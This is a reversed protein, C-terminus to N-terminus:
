ANLLALKSPTVILGRDLSDTYSGEGEFARVVSKEEKSMDAYAKKGYTPPLWTKEQCAFANFTKLVDLNTFTLHCTGKKYFTLSFYRCAINRTKKTQTFWDFLKLIERKISAVTNAAIEQRITLINYKSFDYDVLQALRESYEHQMTETMNDRIAPINFLIQWYKIRLQGIAENYSKGLSIVPDEAGSKPSGLFEKIGEYEEYIRRLGEAAINYREVAASVPDNSVLNEQAGNGINGDNAAQLELRIKSEPPKEPIDISILAVEIKTPRESNVFADKYYGIDAKLDTLTNVLDIQERTHPHRISEAPLICRIAGGNQMISIAKKLHAIGDSFPPNMVIAKYRKHPKYTLFDDHVVRFGEKKLIARCSSSLEICDIDLKTDSGHSFVRDMAKVLNGTGASPELIPGPALNINHVKKAISKAMQEALDNPTPFYDITDAYM